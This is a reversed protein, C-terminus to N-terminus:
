GWVNAVESSTEHGANEYGDNGNQTVHRWQDRTWLIQLPRNGM